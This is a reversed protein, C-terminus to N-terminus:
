TLTTDANVVEEMKPLQAKRKVVGLDDPVGASRGQRGWAAGPENNGHMFMIGDGAIDVNNDLDKLTPQPAM